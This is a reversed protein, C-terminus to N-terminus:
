LCDKAYESAGSSSKVEQQKTTARTNRDECTVPENNKVRRAVEETVKKYYNRLNILIKHNQEKAELEYIEYVEEFISGNYYSWWQAEINSNELYEGIMDQFRIEFGKVGYDFDALKRFATFKPM